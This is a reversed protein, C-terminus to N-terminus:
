AANTRKIEPLPTSSRAGSAAEDQMLSFGSKGIASIVVNGGEGTLLRGGQRLLYDEPDGQFTVWIVGDTCVIERCGSRRSLSFAERNDLPIREGYRIKSRSAM